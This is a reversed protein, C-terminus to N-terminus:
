SVNWAVGTVGLLNNGVAGVSGATHTGHGDLDAPLCAPLAPLCAPPCAPPRAPLCASSNSLLYQSHLGWGLWWGVSLHVVQHHLCCDAALQRSSCRVDLHGVPSITTHMAELRLSRMATTPTSVGAGSSAHATCMVVGRTVGVWAKRQAPVGSLCIEQLPLTTGPRGVAAGCRNWGGVINGALDQHTRRAGTDIVCVRAQPSLTQQLCGMLCKLGQLLPLPLSSKPPAPQTCVSCMRM